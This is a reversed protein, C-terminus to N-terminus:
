GKKLIEILKKFRDDQRTINDDQKDSKTSPIKKRMAYPVINNVIQVKKCGDSLGTGSFDINNNEGISSNNEEINSNNKEINNNKIVSEFM